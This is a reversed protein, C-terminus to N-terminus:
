KKSVAYGSKSAATVKTLHVVNLSKLFKKVATRVDEKKMFKECKVIIQHKREKISIRRGVENIKLQELM